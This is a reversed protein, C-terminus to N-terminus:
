NKKRQYSSTNIYGGTIVSLNRQKSSKRIAARSKHWSFINMWQNADGDLKPTDFKMNLFQIANRTGEQACFTIRNAPLSTLLSTM